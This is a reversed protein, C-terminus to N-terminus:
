EEIVKANVLIGKKRLPLLVAESRSDPIDDEESLKGFLQFVNQQLLQGRLKLLEKLIENEEGSKDNKMNEVIQRVELLTPGGFLDQKASKSELETEETVELLDKSNIIKWFCQRWKNLMERLQAIM